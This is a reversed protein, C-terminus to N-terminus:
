KKKNLDDEIIEKERIVTLLQSIDRRLNKAKKLNKEKGVKGEAKGRILELKKTIVLKEIEKLDKTRLDRLEKTKMFKNM